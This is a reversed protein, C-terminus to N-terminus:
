RSNPHNEANPAAASSSADIPEVVHQRVRHRLPTLLDAHPDREARSATVDKREDDTM